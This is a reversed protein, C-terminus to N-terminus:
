PTLKPSPLTQIFSKTGRVVSVLNACAFAKTAGVVMCTTGKQRVERKDLPRGRMVRITSRAADAEFSLTLPPLREPLGKLSECGTLM